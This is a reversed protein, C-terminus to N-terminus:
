YRFRFGSVPTPDRRDVLRDRANLAAPDNGFQRVADAHRGLVPSVERVAGALAFRERVALGAFMAREGAQDLDRALDFLRGRRGDGAAGVDDGFDAGREGSTKRTM